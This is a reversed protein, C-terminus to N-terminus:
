SGSDPQTGRSTHARGAVEIDSFPAPGERLEQTGEHGRGAIVVVDVPAADRVAAAIARGRDLEQTWGAGPGQAGARVQAAIAEPDENRPNDNTLLVRDALRHALAGMLARKGRDRMGGCGFVVRVRGGPGCLARATRLTGELADPTHAYDVAVLPSWGVPWFRGPVGPFRALGARIAAPGYGLSDAALAAALANLAHVEGFLKLELKHGLAAALPSPALEIRTGQPSLEVKTACLDASPDRASYWRRTVAPAIIEDLLASSPDDRNLVAVGGPGLALFLQAKAVLYAEPSAHMDLHDRTLNTFVALAPRWRAALGAALAKSTVELALTRVGADIAAEVAFLFEDAGSEAEVREGQVEAGLTTLRAHAEGSAAVIADLLSTTTTKGNTGTVAATRLKPHAAAFRRARQQADM